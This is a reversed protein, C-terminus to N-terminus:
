IYQKGFNTKWSTRCKEEFFNRANKDNRATKLVKVCFIQKPTVPHILHCTENHPFSGCISEEVKGLILFRVDPWRHIRVGHNRYKEWKSCIESSKCFINRKSDSSFDFTNNEWASFIWMYKGWSKGFDSILYRTMQPNQSWLEQIKRM